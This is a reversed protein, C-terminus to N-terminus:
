VRGVLLPCSVWPWLNPPFDPHPICCARSGCPYQEETQGDSGDGTIFQDPNKEWRAYRAKGKGTYRM